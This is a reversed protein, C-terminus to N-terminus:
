ADPLQMVVRAGGLRESTELDLRGGYARLIDQVVALGIGQGSVAEDARVGRQLVRTRQAAPVGPGDDEVSVVLGTGVDRSASVYVRGRAWKYANDLVNGLAEMLDGQDGAFTVADDIAIECQIGRAAYVKDLSVSLRQVTPRLAVPKALTTRGSTAARQLQYDVIQRMREVQEAVTSHLAEPPTSEDLTGRVVALPTKLSHALDALTNRYRDRQSRESAIFANLSQTLGQLERPYRDDLRAREGRKIDDLDAAVKRLPGLGWRLITGQVALLVLAVGALWGWLSRRFRSVQDLFSDLNETVQFAYRAPKAHGAEWVVTFSVGYYPQGGTGQLRQFDAVGPAAPRAFPVQLGLMSGSEWVVQGQADVIRAYLGSHPTSFRAEPLARPLRLVGDEQLEAAALLAYVHGQLRDREATQASARFARDLVFGTLGLFVVLVVSAALLLRRNLSMM